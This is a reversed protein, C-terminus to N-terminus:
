KFLSKRYQQFNDVVWKVIKVLDDSEFLIRGNKSHIAFKANEGSTVPIINRATNGYFIVQPEDDGYHWLRIGSATFIVAEHGYKFGGGQTYDRSAFKPFDSLLYSFNYGGYKKDFEGLHTTLGLREMQDVGYKFGDKAIGEADSTFHILWQNKVLQPNNDFYSWAPYDEPEIPLEMSTIKDYLYEAFKNYTDEDNRQLWEMLEIDNDFMDVEEDPEDMYLSQKKEKPREFEIGLEDLFDDFFYYYEHPLYKMKLEKSMSFYDRLYIMYNTIYENVSNERIIKKIINRLRM